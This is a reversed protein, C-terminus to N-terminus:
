QRFKKEEFEEINIYTYSDTLTSYMREYDSKIGVSLGISLTTSVVVCTVTIAAGVGVSAPSCCGGAGAKERIRSQIFHGIKLIWNLHSRIRNVFNWGSSWQGSPYSSNATHSSNSM